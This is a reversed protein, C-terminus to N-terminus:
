YKISSSDRWKTLLRHVFPISIFLMALASGIADNRLDLIDPTRGPVFRQHFEDTVGYIVCFVIVYLKTKWGNDKMGWFFTCALIFYAFFHGWNFDRMQPIFERFFPLLKNLDQQTQSSMIFIVIMWLIAPLWRVIKGM